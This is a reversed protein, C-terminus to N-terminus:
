AAKGKKIAKLRQYEKTNGADAAKQMKADIDSMGSGGGDVPTESAATSITKASPLNSMVRQELLALHKILGNPNSSTIAQQAVQIFDQQEKANSGIVALVLAANDGGVIDRVFNFDNGLLREAKELSDDINKVMKRHEVVSKEFAEEAAIQAQTQARVNELHKTRGQEVSSSSEQWDSLAENYAALAIAESGNFEDYLRDQNVFDAVRPKETVKDPKYAHSEPIVGNDLQEELQKLKKKAIRNEAYLRNHESKDANNEEPQTGALSAADIQEIVEEADDQTSSEVAEAGADALQEASIQEIESEDQLKQEDTDVSM